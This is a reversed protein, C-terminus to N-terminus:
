LTVALTVSWSKAHKARTCWEPPKYGRAMWSNWGHTGIEKCLRSCNKVSEWVSGKCSKWRFVPDSIALICAFKAHFLALLITSLIWGQVRWWRLDGGGSIEWQDGRLRKSRWSAEEIAVSMSRERIEVFGRWDGWKEKTERQKENNSWHIELPHHNPKGINRM